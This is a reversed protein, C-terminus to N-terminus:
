FDAALGVYGGNVCRVIDDAGKKTDLKPTTEGDRGISYLDFDWNLPKFFKDQRAGKPPKCKTLTEDCSIELYEYVNGWPDRLNARGVEALSAPLRSNLVQFVLIEKEVVRIDAVAKATRANDLANAYLPVGLTALTAMIMVVILLEIITLGLSREHPRLLCLLGRHRIGLGLPSSQEIM